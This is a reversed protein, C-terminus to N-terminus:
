QTEGDVVEEYSAEFISKKVPYYEGEIGKVLYDGYSANMVGEHTWVQWHSDLYSYIEDHEVGRSIQVAEVVHPIKRYKKM